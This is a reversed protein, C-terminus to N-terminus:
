HQVEQMHSFKIDANYAPITINDSNEVKVQIGRYMLTKLYAGEGLIYNKMVDPDGIVNLTFPAALKVGNIRLFEGFCYVETTTIVRQDNISIAQAGSNKLSNLVFVIDINHVIYSSDNLDLLNGENDVTGDNLVIKLGKGTVQEAGIDMNNKKLESIIEDMISTSTPQGQTYKQLKQYNDFYQEKLNSIDNQLKNRQNYAQQYEQTSLFVNQPVDKFSINLSILLGIVISAIFVFITTENFKM